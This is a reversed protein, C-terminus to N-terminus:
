GCKRCNVNAVHAHLLQLLRMLQDPLCAKKPITIATMTSVTLIIHEGTERLNSFATWAYQCSGHPWKITLGADDVDLQHRGVFVEYRKASPTYSRWYLQVVLGLILLCVVGEVMPWTENKLGWLVDAFLVGSALMLLGVHRQFWRGEPSDRGTQWSAAVLDGMSVDYEVHVHGLNEVSM